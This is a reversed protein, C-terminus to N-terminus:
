NSQGLVELYRNKLLELEETTLPRKWHSFIGRAILRVVGVEATRPVYHFHLHPVSRDALPGNKQVLLYDTHDFLNKSVAHIKQISRFISLVEGETLEEFREVHRKPIVLLHGDVVPRHGLFVLAEGEEFVTRDELIQPNCFPCNASAISTILLFISFFRFM